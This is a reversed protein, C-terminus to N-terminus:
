NSAWDLNRSLQVLQDMAEFGLYGTFLELPIDKPSKVRKAVLALDLISKSLKLREFAYTMIDEEPCVVLNYIHRYIRVRAIDITPVGIRTLVDRILRRIYVDHTWNARTLTIYLGMVIDPMLNFKDALWQFCQPTLKSEIINM